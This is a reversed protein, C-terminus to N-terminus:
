AGCSRHWDSRTKQDRSPPRATCSRSAAPSGPVVGLVRNGESGARLRAKRSARGPGGRWGAARGGREPAPEARARQGRPSAVARARAAAPPARQGRLDGGEGRAHGADAGHGRHHRPHLRAGAGPRVAHRHRVPRPRGRLLGPGVGRRALRRLARHRRLVDPLLRAGAGASRLAPHRADGGAAVVRTACAAATPGRRPRHPTAASISAIWRSGRPVQPVPVDVPAPIGAMRKQLALGPPALRLM